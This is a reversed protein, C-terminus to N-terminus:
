HQRAPPSPYIGTENNDEKSITLAALNFFSILAEPLQEIWLAVVSKKWRVARRGIRVPKPFRNESIMKYITSRSLGTMEEVHRRDILRDVIDGKRHQTATM